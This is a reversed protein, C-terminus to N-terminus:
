KWTHKSIKIKCTNFNTRMIQAYATFPFFDLHCETYTAETNPLFKSKLYIFRTDRFICMCIIIEQKKTKTNSIKILHLNPDQTKVSIHSYAM